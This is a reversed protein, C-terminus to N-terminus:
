PWKGAGGPPRGRRGPVTCRRGRPGAGKNANTSSRECSRETISPMPGGHLSHVQAQGTRRCPASSSSSGPRFGGGCSPPRFNQRRGDVWTVWRPAEHGNGPKPTCSFRSFGRGGGFPLTYGQARHAALAADVGLARWKPRAGGEAESLCTHSLYSPGAFHSMPRYTRVDSPPLPCPQPWPPCVLPWTRRAQEVVGTARGGQFNRM